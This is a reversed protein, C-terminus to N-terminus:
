LTRLCTLLSCACCCTAYDRMALSAFAQPLALWRATWTAMVTARPQETLREVKLEQRGSSLMLRLNM